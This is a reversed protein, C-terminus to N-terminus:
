TGEPALMGLEGLWGSPGGANHPGRCAGAPGPLGRCAGAPGPLGRCAGAPGHSM